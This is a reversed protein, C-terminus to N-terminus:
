AALSERVEVAAQLTTVVGALLMPVYLWGMSLEMTTAELDWSREVVEFGYWAVLLGLWAIAAQMVAEWIRRARPPLMDQFFRVRIHVRRRSAMVWGICALWVMLFRSVEDTWMLPDGLARTAVGLLVAVCLAAILLMALLQFTKDLVAALRAAM